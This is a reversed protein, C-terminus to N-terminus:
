VVEKTSVGISTTVEKDEVPGAIQIQRLSNLLILESPTLSFDQKIPDQLPTVKVSTSQQFDHTHPSRLDNFFRQGIAVLIYRFSSFSHSDSATTRGAAPYLTLHLAPLTPSAAPYLTLPLDKYPPNVAAYLRFGLRTDKVLLRADSLAWIAFYQRSRLFSNAASEKQSNPIGLIVDSVGEVEM